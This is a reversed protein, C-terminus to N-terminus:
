PDAKRVAQALRADRAEQTQEFAANIIPRERMKNTGTFLYTAWPTVNTLNIFYSGDPQKGVQVAWHGAFAGSQLNVIFDPIGATGAGFRVSYPHGMRRLESLSFYRKGSLEQAKQLVMQACDDMAADLEDPLGQEAAQKWAAGLQRFQDAFLRTFTDKYATVAGALKDAEFIAALRENSLNLVDFAPM